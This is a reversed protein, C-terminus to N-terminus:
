EKSRICARSETGTGAGPCWFCRLRCWRRRPTRGLPFPSARAAGPLVVACVSRLTCGLCRFRSGPVVLCPSPPREYSGEVGAARHPAGVPKSQPSGRQRLYVALIAMSGVALFESQWNQLTKQWFDTRTLYEGWSVPNQQHDLRGANDEHSRHDVARVLHRGLDSGDRAAALKEYLTRRIGAIKAWRPSDPQAHEGVRQDKDSGAGRHRAAEVRTLRAAPALRHATQLAHSFTNTTLKGDRRHRVGLVRPLPRLLHAARRPPGTRTSTRTDPWPRFDLLESSCCSSPWRCGNNRVFSRM